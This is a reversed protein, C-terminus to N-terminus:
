KISGNILERRKEDDWTLYDADSYRQNLFLKLTEM